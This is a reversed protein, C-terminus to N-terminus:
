CIARVFTLKENEGGSTPSRGSVNGDDIALLGGALGSSTLVQTMGVKGVKKRM